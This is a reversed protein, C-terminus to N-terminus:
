GDGRLADSLQVCRSDQLRPGVNDVALIGSHRGKEQHGLVNVCKKACIRGFVDSFFAALRKPHRANDCTHRARTIM